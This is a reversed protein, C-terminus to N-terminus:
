ANFSRELQERLVAMSAQECLRRCEMVVYDQSRVIGPLHLTRECPLRPDPADGAHACDFGIWTGPFNEHFDRYTLGGHVNAPIDDYRLDRWPHSLPLRIYGTRFGMENHAVVWNFGVHEGTALVLSQRKYLCPPLEMRDYSDM